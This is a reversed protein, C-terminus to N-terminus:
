NDREALQLAAMAFTDAARYCDNWSTYEAPSHSKGNESVAFVMGTDCVTALHSADHGAGSVLQESQYGLEDAVAQVTEICQDAFTVSPVRAREESEWDVNEREAAWRIENVVREYGEKVVADSPDRIDWTFTVKEPIINASNPQTEIHGTTAVTREGLRAPLRRIKTIVDAAAVLADKRHHMATPGTHDAEGRYTATGWTQGVIGTVIGVQSGSEDLRPGQEIHLELYAAYEEDPECAVEGRYGIRELEDIFMNNGEDIKEYETELNHVGAWVGSGQMPPQFRSGEENTWNVIEIPHITQIDNEELKRLFELAACVGLQGDYIGGNPQSDLHSGVLLPAASSNSGERRGFINGMEDVRVALGMDTLQECFWDRVARDANSLALRHLGNQETAGIAAQEQMTEEFRERDIQIM